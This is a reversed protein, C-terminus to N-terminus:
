FSAYPSANANSAPTFVLQNADLQAKTIFQGATVPNGSLTLSGATPTTTIEVAAFNNPPTDNPDTFGFDGALFTYGTDESTTVTKDTGAPADNVATVNITMTNPTPDTDSGGGDDAVQ